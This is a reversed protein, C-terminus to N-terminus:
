RVYAQFGRDRLRHAARFADERCLYEGGCRWADHSCERFFVEFRRVEHRRHTEHAETPTPLALPSLLSLSAVVAILIKRFM